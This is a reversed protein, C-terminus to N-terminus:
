NTAERHLASQEYCVCDGVWDTGICNDVDDCAYASLPSLHFRAGVAATLNTWLQQWQVGATSNVHAAAVAWLKGFAANAGAKVTANIATHPTVAPDLLRNTGPYSSAPGNGGGGLSWVLPWKRKICFAQIEKGFGSGFFTPFSAVVIKVADPFYPRGTSHTLVVSHAIGDAYM